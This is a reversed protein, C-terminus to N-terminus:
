KKIFEIGNIVLTDIDDLCQKTNSSNLNIDLENLKFTVDKCDLVLNYPKIDSLSNTNFCLGRDGGFTYHSVGTYSINAGCTKFDSM